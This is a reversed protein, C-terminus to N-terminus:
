RDGTGENLSQEVGTSTQLNHLAVDGLCLQPDCGRLDILRTLDHEGDDSISHHVAPPQIGEEDATSIAGTMVCGTMQQWKCFCRWVVYM